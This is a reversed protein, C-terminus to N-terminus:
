LYMGDFYCKKVISEIQKFKLKNKFNNQSKIKADYSILGAKHLRELQIISKAISEYQQAAHQCKVYYQIKAQNASV